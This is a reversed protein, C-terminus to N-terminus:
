IQCYRGMLVPNDIYIFQRKAAGSNFGVSEYKLRRDRDEATLAQCYHPKWPRRNLEDTLITQVTGFSFGSERVAM